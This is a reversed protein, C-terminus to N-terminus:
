TARRRAWRARIAGAMLLGCGLFGAAAAALTARFLFANVTLPEQGAARDVPLLRMTPDEPPTILTEANIFMVRVPGSGERVGYVQWVPDRPDRIARQAEWEAEPWARIIMVEVALLSVATQCAFLGLVALALM